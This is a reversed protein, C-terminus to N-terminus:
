SLVWMSPNIFQENDVALDSVNVRAPEQWASIIKRLERCSNAGVVAVDLHEAANTMITELKKEGTRNSFAILKDMIPQFYVPISSIPMLLLGQLFLSRGHIELGMSRLEQFMPVFRQDLVNYPIQVFDLSVHANYCAKLAEKLESPTYVSIGIKRCTANARVSALFSLLPEGYFTIDTGRHISLSEINTRNLKCLSHKLSDRCTQLAKEVTGELPPLKTYIGFAESMVFSGIVEESNGYAHATDLSKVGGEQALRLIEEAEALPIQGTQNSVGYDLGFQVTGLMLRM